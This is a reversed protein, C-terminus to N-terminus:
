GASSLFVEVAPMSSHGLNSPSLRLGKVQL